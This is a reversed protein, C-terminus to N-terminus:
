QLGGEDARTGSRLADVVEGLLYISGTVVVTEGPKGLTTEAHRPFLEEVTAERITGAYSEPVAAQLEAFSCARPQQPRLLVIERAHRAVVPMLAAARAEGLTGAAIVLGGGEQLALAALNTDLAAAGEPNHSADLILTRDALPIKEWRGAWSVNQLATARQEDSIAFRKGLVELTLVATAANIRQYDGTLNTVPYHDLDEGFHEKVAYLPCGLETARQRMVVEAEEPLHGIVVPVGPKIIGAKETAIQTLTDGLIDMHDYSISTIVSVEPMVVNSADLRGGLGTEIIGIDVSAEAFRLFAMATVFEFFSPHDEPDIAALREAIARLHETLTVIAAPALVERNVQIREGLYVLHPSTFLGTMYGAERFCAELIACTSGKGNTGAVHIVPFQREPQGLQASLLRMRDIGYKAGHHRLSYLYTKTAEYTAPDALM